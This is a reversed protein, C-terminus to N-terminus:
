MYRERVDAPLPPAVSAWPPMDDLPLASFVSGGETLRGLTYGPEYSNTRSNFLMLAAYRTVSNDTRCKAVQMYTNWQFTNPNPVDFAPALMVAKTAIKPVDSSGHFDEATPILGDNRRDGKRLHAVM